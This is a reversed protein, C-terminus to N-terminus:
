EQRPQFLRQMLTYVMPCQLERSFAEMSFQFIFLFRTITINIILAIWRQCLPYSATQSIVYKNYVQDICCENRYSSSLKFQNQDSKGHTHNNNNNGFSNYKLKFIVNVAKLVWLLWSSICMYKGNFTLTSIWDSTKTLSWHDPNSM